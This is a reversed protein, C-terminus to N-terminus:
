GDQRYVLCSWENERAVETLTLKRNAFGEKVLDEKEILIGSLILFAGPRLRATLDPALRVLDEALINAIVIDFAGPIRELPTDSVAVLSSVRNLECNERAVRVAEPDIDVATVRSAGLRAAAIGLIGSGTGVDLVDRSQLCNCGEGSLLRELVTLCLMTTPHTGTGFAMGPDLELVLDEAGPSFDEWTPKVVLRRGIRLPKFHEKWSTSWDQETIMTVTPKRYAFGAFSPGNAALYDEIERVRDDLSEDAPFYATVSKVPSEALSDLSFTDLVLNDIGVGNGSLEILYEAVADVMESPVECSVQAWEKTMASDEKKMFTAAM